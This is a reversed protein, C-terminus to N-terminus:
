HEISGRLRRALMILTKASEHLQSIEIRATGAKDLLEFTPKMSGGLRHLLERDEVM